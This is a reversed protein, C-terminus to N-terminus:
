DNEFVIPMFVPWGACGESVDLTTSGITHNGWSDVAEVRVDYAGCYQYEHSVVNSDYPATYDSGDGFDWRYSVGTTGTINSTLNAEFTAVPTTDSYVPALQSITVEPEDMAWDMFMGMLEARSTAQVGNNVGELGFSTFISRGLYDIGSWELSPQDRHSIGVIGDEMDYPGPYAFLQEFPYITGPVPNPEGGPFTELEDIYYQNAAGDGSAEITLQGRVEGPPNAESHVNFYLHGALLAAEEDETLTESGSWSLTETVVQSTTFPWTGFIPPGTADVTGSHVHANTLTVPDGATITIQYWFDNNVGDYQVIAEGSTTTAVPPVENAGSLPILNYEPGSLDLVVDDFAMPAGSAPIIPLQPLDFNTISDQVAVAGTVAEVFFSENMISTADQGM